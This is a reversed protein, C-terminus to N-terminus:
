GGQLFEHDRLFGIVGDAAIQFGRSATKGVATLVTGAEVPARVVFYIAFALLVWMALKKLM